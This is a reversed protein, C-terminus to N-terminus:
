CASVLAARRGAVLRLAALCAATLFVETGLTAWAAGDISWAPILRANLALNIVLAAACIAAYAREGNWGILQHTLAYNLSLLPFALTLIRFAPVAAAYESGYVFPVLWPAVAWLVITAAVAFLTVGLSVRTLPRRDSARVLTPLTVALVAAPFLRLAEVLRFVANYLAVLSLGWWVEVLFIDIRFYLASLVIGLGIPLIEQRFELGTSKVLAASDVARVARARGIRSAIRLSMALTLVVPLLMAAALLTLGPRWVLVASACGLTALRQWLTLSSELDTRSLGRYFYHLFEIVGSCAYVAALLFIPLADGRWGRVALGVTVLAIAAAATWLRVTLWRGLLREAADPRQAVTRALHLQIGFDAAVALVWGLTSAVSFLGFEYTSLRRAALVTILFLSGKAALDSLAKYAVLLM